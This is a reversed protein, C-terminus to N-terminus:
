DCLMREFAEAPVAESFLFGQGFDCQAEILLKQQEATEIGEAIVQLGLEHAMATVSRVIARDSENTVMDRIFSQDIKLYDIDFKKLYAMSSYGTGFDDIAVQIGADRYQLLKNVIAPSANLLLGETIEVSVSSGDMGMEKLYAPWNVEKSQSLFQVPSKNVSVQFTKGLRRSWQRSCYAAERFVWDGIETILGSEEAFSIFRQPAIMGLRPHQWRLLAEAKVVRSAALDVVPQYYVKLEGHSLADRLDAILRLRDHAERQMSPTFYSYRNRGANKAVYMAQDANRILNEANDADEPYLTIGISASLYVVENGVHFPKVLADNIKQAIPEIHTLNDLEALIATFEDGGLRAVTDSERVCACIRRAAEMLIQDGIDHGLLDNAEKFRDLDIFLLALPQGTRRAKKIEHDLRDRFLRRNPLSTLADFNAHRWIIEEARRKESIDTVTGTMRLPEGQEDRRVVIARALVWRWEGDQSRVRYEIGVAPTTGKLTALVDAMMGQRDDPHVRSSWDKIHDLPDDARLGLIEKTRESCIVEDSQINWDWVGDGSGEIALKLRENSIRLEEQARMADNVDISIGVHGAYRGDATFWPAGHSEVWHWQGDKGIFRARCQTHGRRVAGRFAQGSTPNDEPHMLSLWGLGLIEDESLPTLDRHRQNMYVAYGNPDLQWILAPSAEALARFRAESEALAEQARIRETLDVTVALVSYHHNPMEELRTVFCNAFVIDGNARIYRKDLSVSGGTELLQGIAQLTRELDEPHTVDQIGLKLLTQPSRGLMRCLEANVRQFRGQASIVSLGVQAQAFIASLRQESDRLAHEAEMRETTEIFLALAGGPKGSEDLVPAYHISLWARKETGNHRLTFERSPRTLSRGHARVNRMDDKFDRHDPWVEELKSGLLQPHLTESFVACADNYLVVGDEGWALIAPMPLRLLIDITRKFGQSWAAIPGLRTASWDTARIRQSMEGCSPWLTSGPRTM